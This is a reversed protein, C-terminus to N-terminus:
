GTRTPHPYYRINACTVSRMHSANIASARTCPEGINCVSPKFVEASAHSGTFGDRCHLYSTLILTQDISWHTVAYIHIHQTPTHRTQTPNSHRISAPAPGCHCTEQSTPHPRQSFVVCMCVASFFIVSAPNFVKLAATAELELMVVTSRLPSYSIPHM